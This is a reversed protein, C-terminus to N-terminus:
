DKTEILARIENACVKCGTDSKGCIAGENIYGAIQNAKEDCLDAARELAERVADDKEKIALADRKPPNTIPEGSIEIFPKTFVPKWETNPEDIMWQLLVPEFNGYHDIYGIPEGQQADREALFAALKRPCTVFADMPTELNVIEDPTYSHKKALEIDRDSLSM